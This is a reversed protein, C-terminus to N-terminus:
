RASAESISPRSAPRRGFKKLERMLSATRLKKLAKQHGRKGVTALRAIKAKREIAPYDTM